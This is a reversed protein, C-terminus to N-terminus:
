RATGTDYTMELNESRNPAPAPPLGTSPGQIQGLEPTGAPQPPQAVQVLKPYGAAYLPDPEGYKRQRRLLQYSGARATLASCTAAQGAPASEGPVLHTRGQHGAGPACAPDQVDRVLDGAPHTALVLLVRPLRLGDSEQRGRPVTATTSLGAASDECPA